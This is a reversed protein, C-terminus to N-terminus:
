ACCLGPGSRNIKLDAVSWKGDRRQRSQRRDGIGHRNVCSGARNVLLRDNFQVAEVTASGDSQILKPEVM